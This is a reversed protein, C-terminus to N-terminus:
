RRDRLSYYVLVLICWSGFLILAVLGLILERRPYEPSEALTPQVYAALYRSQRQANAQAADFNSLASTYKNEAFEREVTLKEFEAVVDAYDGAEEESGGSGFKQREEQIRARIAAIRREAQIVRPDEKRASERLLDYDILEQGLMQQLSGLLGMQVQIDADPNVIQNRSRFATLAQRATSLQELATALDERAYRMADERAIASLENIMSSSESFIEEAIRKSTAADFSLVEVDILGTGPAYSIRVMRQWFNLLDEISAGPPLAFIPDTEYPASYLERLGLKADIKSVLEHSQIFAFLVDSDSSSASSFNTLGGLIDVATPAEERRVTFAVSSAFQDHANTWLYYAAAGIPALVLILFSLLIGMHRRKPRASQAPPRPKSKQAAPKTKAAPKKAPAEDTKASDSATTKATQDQPSQDNM